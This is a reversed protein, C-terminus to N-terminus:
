AKAPFIAELVSGSLRLMRQIRKLTANYDYYMTKATEIKENTSLTTLNGNDYRNRCLTSIASFLEDDTYFINEGIEKAIEKDTEISKGLKYFYHSADRFM